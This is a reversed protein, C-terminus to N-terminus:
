WHNYKRRNTQHINHSSRCFTVNWVYLDWFVHESFDALYWISDRKGNWIFLSAQNNFAEHRSRHIMLWGFLFLFIYDAGPTRDIEGRRVIINTEHTQHILIFTSTRESLRWGGTVVNDKMMISLRTQNSRIWILYLPLIRMFLYIIYISFTTLGRKCRGSNLALYIKPYFFAPWRIDFSAGLTHTQAPYTHTDPYGINLWNGILITSRKASKM